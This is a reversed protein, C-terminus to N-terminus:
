KRDTQTPKMVHDKFTRISIMKARHGNPVYAYEHINSNYIIIIILETGMPFMHIDMFSLDYIIIIVFIIIIHYFSFRNAMM